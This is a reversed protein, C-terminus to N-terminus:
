VRLRLHVHSIQLTPAPVLSLVCQSMTGKFYMSIGSDLLCGTSKMGKQTENHENFCVLEDVM